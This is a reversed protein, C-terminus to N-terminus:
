EGKNMSDRLAEIAMAALHGKGPPLGGLVAMLDSPELRAAAELTRGRVLECTLSGSAISAPCGHCGYAADVIMDGEVRLWIEIWPGEGPEGSVGYRAGELPGQNRPRQVHDAALPSLM